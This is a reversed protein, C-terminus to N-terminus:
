NSIVNISQKVQQAIARANELKSHVITVHGMKRFPRTEKKGYMHPTVGEMEMLKEINEYIVNGTHGEAGVLNVMVSSVKNKTSGMPLGLIARIHQEFQSTYSAEITQHGSNHPRPAVENILIEDDQTLFLEVALLGVHEFAASTKLAIQEAKAAIEDSIRAPCLVYEVQNAEPHFEMEVVPYVKVQGKTNRAVIVALESKFPVLEETICEVNPLNELDAVSRVIKVGTGDYGFQARKWVFPFEVSSHEIATYIEETFAFRKFTASPLNHDVYFLKQTAKNQISELTKSSPFVNVGEKELAKLAEINVNEIEITLTNVKKGFNYVTEYDMLDGQFFENCALKSPAESSPDLVSTHIDFKRTTYLLMKGLQGGGLIGLKFNSSFYEM